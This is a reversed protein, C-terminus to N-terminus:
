HKGTCIFQFTLEPFALARLRPFKLLLVITLTLPAVCVSFSSAHYVRMYFGVQYWSMSHPKIAIEVRDGTINFTSRQQTHLHLLVAAAKTCVEHEMLGYFFFADSILPKIDRAPTELVLSGDRHCDRSTYAYPFQVGNDMLYITVDIGGYVRRLWDVYAAHLKNSNIVGFPHQLWPALKRECHTIADKFYRHLTRTDGRVWTYTPNLQLFNFASVLLLQPSLAQCLLLFLGLPVYM